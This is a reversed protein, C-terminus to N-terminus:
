EYLFGQDECDSCYCHLNGKHGCNLCQGDSTPEQYYSEGCSNCQNGIMGCDNCCECRAISMGKDTCCEFCFKGVPGIRECRLCMGNGKVSGPGEFKISPPHPMLENYASDDSNIEVRVTDDADQLVKDSRSQVTRHDETDQLEKNQFKNNAAMITNRSMWAQHQTTHARGCFIDTQCRKPTSLPVWFMGSCGLFCDKEM